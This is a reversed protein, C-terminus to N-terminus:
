KQDEREVGGTCEVYAFGTHTGRGMGVALQINLHAMAKLYRSTMLPGTEVVSDFGSSTALEGVVRRAEADDGAVFVTVDTKRDETLNDAFVTNFAKVIKARPLQIQIAESGSKAGYGVDDLPSWDSSNLPNTADIVIKGDVHDQLDPVLSAMSSYPVALVLLEGQKAIEAVNTRTSYTVEHHGDNASSFLAGLRTGVNGKGFIAIKM